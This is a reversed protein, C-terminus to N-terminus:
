TGNVHGDKPHLQANSLLPSDITKFCITLNIIVTANKNVKDAHPPPCFASCVVPDPSSRVLSFLTSRGESSFFPASTVSVPVNCYELKLPAAGLLDVLVCFGPEELGFLPVDLSGPTLAVIASGSEM